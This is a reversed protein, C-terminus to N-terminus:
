GSIHEHVRNKNEFSQFPFQSQLSFQSSTKLGRIFCRNREEFGPNQVSSPSAPPTIRSFHFPFQTYSLFQIKAESLCYRGRKTFPSSESVQKRQPGLYSFPRSGVRGLLLGSGTASLHLSYVCCGLTQGASFGGQPISSMGRHSTGQNWMRKQIGCLRRVVKGSSQWRRNEEQSHVRFLGRPAM